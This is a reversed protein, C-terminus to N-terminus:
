TRCIFGGNQYPGAAELAALADKKNQPKAAQLITDIDPMKDAGIGFLEKVILARERITTRDIKSVTTILIGFEENKCTFTIRDLDEFLGSLAVKLESATGYFAYSIIKANSPETNPRVRMCEPAETERRHFVIREEDPSIPDNAPESILHINRELNLSQVEGIIGPNTKLIKVLNTDPNKM